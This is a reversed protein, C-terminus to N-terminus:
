PYVWYALVIDPAFTRIRRTLARGAVWGNTIRSLGPIAPYEFAEVEIDALRYDEGVSGKLFSRPSLGPLNPYRPQMFFVRVQAIRSLSRATEHIYRGRTRDHPVPLMPTM